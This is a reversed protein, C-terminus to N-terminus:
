EKTLKFLNYFTGVAGAIIGGVVFGEIRTVGRLFFGLFVGIILPTVLYYGINFYKALSFYNERKTKKKHRIAGSKKLNLNKDFAFYEKNMDLNTTSLRLTSPM